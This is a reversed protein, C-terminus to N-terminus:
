TKTRRTSKIALICNCKTMPEKDPNVM